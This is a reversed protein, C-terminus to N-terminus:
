RRLTAALAALEDLKPLVSERGASPVLFVLHTYGEAIVERAGQENAPPGFMALTIDGFNRGRKDCEERLQELDGAGTRGYIPMFGDGYEAVRSAIWKSNSGLWVPPGGAQVPKPYSWLPEFRVFEGHFEAQEQTWMAKMALVRERLIKWRDKFVTGHNEMEERNWGAGAGFIVRGNSVLDLSAVAKATVIPDRETVLCVGLALKVKTTVAACAALAVLPDHTHSYHKPLEAGGPWPSKRSVPIHTHEPFFMSDLNREEVARAFAVPQISYDTPFMCVGCSIM